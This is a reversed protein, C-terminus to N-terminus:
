YLKGSTGNKIHKPRLIISNHDKQVEATEDINRLGIKHDLKTSFTDIVPIGSPTPNVFKKMRRQHEDLMQDDNYTKYILPSTSNIGPIMNINQM